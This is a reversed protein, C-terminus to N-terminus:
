VLPRNVGLLEWHTVLGQPYNGGGATQSMECHCHMPYLLPFPEQKPPWAAPPIEDPKKFPLIVDIRELPRVVWTDLEYVNSSCYIKGDSGYSDSVCFVHNGHIHPAHTAIGANMTRILVPEGLYGKPVTAPDHAADYGSLGNLTFYRPRFRYIPLSLDVTEGREAFRNIAPDVQSMLWVIDRAPVNHRWPQGPFEAHTGLADFLAAVEPTLKNAHYPTYAGNPTRCNGVKVVMAGHLGVVRSMAGESNDYYIYSGATPALFSITTTAGAPISPFKDAPFGTIAFRRAKRTKNVLKITVPTANHNMRLTPRLARTVPDRFALAFVVEGDILEEYIEEMHLEFFQAVGQADAESDFQTKAFAAALAATTGYAIFDRRDM